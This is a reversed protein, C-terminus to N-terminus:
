RYIWRFDLPEEQGYFGLIQNQETPNKVLRVGYKIEEESPNQADGPRWFNLQLTKATYERGFGPPKGAQYNDTFRYANTLGQIYISFYDINPDIIEWIAVGWIPKGEQMPVRSIEVSNHLKVGVRERREIARQASPLIRDLYSKKTTQRGSRADYGELVLHPFFRPNLGNIPEVKFVQHGFRDEVELPRMHNGKNEVKYVMYWVLKREVKPGVQPQDVSIMRVPKFTFELNWITQRIVMRNLKPLLTTSKSYHNPQWDLQPKETTLEVLPRPVFVTEDEEAKFPITTLVGPALRRTPGSVPTGAPAPQQAEAMQGIFMTAILAFALPSRFHMAVGQKTIDFDL